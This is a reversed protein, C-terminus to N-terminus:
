ASEEEDDELGPLNITFTTGLGETSHIDIWGGQQKVLDYCVSLGLGTGSQKTTFFPTGIKELTEKSMGKGNDSIKIYINNNEEIIGAEITLIPNSLEAMAEVANKCMNLIVQRIQAEDCIIYREDIDYIFKIDVGRILSSTEIISKVSELLDCVAIEELAAQKPKSLSLFDSIIRNVEDTNVDIKTAYEIVKSQDSTAMILQGCGKITTLFNRTEHVIAAGMQGLLALKEQHLTKEQQERLDTIDTIVSIRGIPNGYVNLIDSRRVIVSKKIGIFNTFMGEFHEEHIDNETQDTYVEKYIYNVLKYLKMMNMGILRDSSLGILEEYSKNVSVINYNNDIIVSPNQMSNLITHTQIHLTNIDQEKEIDKIILMMGDEIIQSEVQLKINKDDKRLFTEISNKTEKNKEVVSLINTNKFINSIENNSLGIIEERKCGFLNEFQKNAFDLKLNSDFTKIGIPIADLIDTLRKKSKDLEEYTYNISGQFISKYLFYCYLIRFVHAYEILASTRTKYLMVCIETPIIFILAISLYKYSVYGREKIKGKHRLLSIIALAIIILELIIKISTLGNDNYLLPFLADYNIVIYSAAVPLFLFIILILRKDLKIKKNRFNLSAIFIMIIETLRGLVWFKISLDSSSASSVGLSNLNYIHLTDYISTTLLGFAILRSSLPSSDYKNWVVFFLSMNFVICILDLAAHVAGSNVRWLSRDILFGIGIGIVMTKLFIIYFKDEKVLNYYKKAHKYM